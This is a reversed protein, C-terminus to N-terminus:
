YNRKPYVKSGYRQNEKPEEESSNKPEETPQRKADDEKMQKIVECLQNLTMPLYYGPRVTRTIDEGQWVFKGCVECM